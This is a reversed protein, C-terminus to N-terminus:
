QPIVVPRSRQRALGALSQDFTVLTSGSSIAFALLYLDGIAKDANQQAVSSTAARFESDLAPSEPRFAVRPDMLLDDYVSWAQELTLVEDGMVSPNTLLRLLGLQTYRCFVLRAGAPLLSLWTWAAERHRHTADALAIWVNVDPFFSIM